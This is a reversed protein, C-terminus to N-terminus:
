GKQPLDYVLKMSSFEMADNLSVLRLGTQIADLQNSISYIAYNVGGLSFEAVGNNGASMPQIAKRAEEDTISAFSDAITGDMNYLTAYATLHTYSVANNVDITAFGWWADRPERQIEGDKISGGRPAGLPFEHHDTVNFFDGNIGCYAKHGEYTMRECAHTVLETGPIRDNALFTEIKNYPNHM